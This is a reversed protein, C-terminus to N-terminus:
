RTKLHVSGRTRGDEKRIHISLTDLEGYAKVLEEVMAKNAKIDDRVSGEPMIKDLNDFYLKMNDGGYQHLVKFDVHVWAGKRGEGDAKGALETLEESFKKSSSAFFLEDSVSVSPVFDDNQFPIPIFWTKLANKESSMPVQMPIETGSMEGMKKLLNEISKNLRQWSKQLKSRDDVTSVYAVRPIKAQALIDEPINPLKPMTGKMDMVLASESGLGQAMDTRLAKWIEVVDDRFMQDFMDIGPKWENFVGPKESSSLRRAMLYGAEGLTDIYEMLQENYDPNSAWNAFLLNDEGMAMPGLSHSVDFDISPMNSGGFSEVKFGDDLYSVYGGETGGFMATLKQAQEGMLELLAEIEQTDGLAGASGLEDGLGQAISGSFRYLVPGAAGIAKVVKEDSLGVSILDHDLYEDLFSMQDNACYSENVDSVIVLQDESKGVFLIVYEGVVGTVVILNKSKLAKKFAQVDGAGFVKQMESTVDEDILEAIKKGIIKYGSFESDGRKFTIEEVATDMHALMSISEEMQAMVMNRTDPDSVKGGQYYAPMDFESLMRIVDKSVGKLPGKFLRDEFSGPEQDGLSSNMEYVGWRSGYYLLRELFQVALDMTEGGGSGYATFFEESYLAIQSRWEDSNNDMETALDELTLGEEEMRELLYSGIPSKLLRDFTKRGNLLVDFKTIDKPLHGAYGLKAARQQASASSKAPEDPKETPVEPVEPQETQAGESQASPPATQTKEKCATMAMSGALLTILTYKTKMSNLNPTLNLNPNPNLNPSFITIFSKVDFAGSAVLDGAM